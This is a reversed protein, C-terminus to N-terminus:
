YVGPFLRRTKSAYEEYLSGYQERMHLEERRIRRLILVVWGVALFWGMISAFLLSFAIRSAVIGTYRPHRVLGYPGSTIIRTRMDPHGFHERLYKDTWLLWLPTVAWIVLGTSQLVPRALEPLLRWHGYDLFVTLEALTLPILWRHLGPDYTNGLAEDQLEKTASVSKLFTRNEFFWLPALAFFGGSFLDIRSAPHPSGWQWLCVWAAALYVGFFISV